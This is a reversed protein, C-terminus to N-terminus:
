IKGERTNQTQMGHPFVRATLWNPYWDFLKRFLDRWYGRRRGKQAIEDRIHSWNASPVFAGVLSVINTKKYHFKNVLLEDYFVQSSIM